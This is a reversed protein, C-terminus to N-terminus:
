RAVFADPRVLQDLVFQIAATDDRRALVDDPIRWMQAFRSSFQTIAGEADVVLVGDATSDLTASLLSVSSRVERDSRENLETLLGLLRIVFAMGLISLAALGHVYPVRVYTPVINLAIAAQGLVIGAVTWFLMARWVRSGGRDLARALVFVYGISLTAGWGIAYIIATVGLVQAAMAANLAAFSADPTLMGGTLEGSVGAVALLTLLVWIPLDGVVGFRSLAWFALATLVSPVVATALRGLPPQERGARESM